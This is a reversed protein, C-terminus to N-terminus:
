WRPPQDFTIFPLELPPTAPGPDAFALHMCEAVDRPTLSRGRAALDAARGSYFLGLAAATRAPAGGALFAGIAGSLQDGMGASAVDSSGVTNVLVPEGPAGIVAPAGKLLVVCGLRGAVEGAVAVRERLIRENPWGNIRSMEGAHPTIVLPRAAAVRGLGDGESALMTIADADLLTPRGATLDLVRHLVARADDGIGLGPGALVADAHAAMREVAAEDEREAFVAEPVVAQLPERNAAASVLRVLGVGARIAGLGALAAAGAMGRSGALVLLRGVSGKHADP